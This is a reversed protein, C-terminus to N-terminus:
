SGYALFLTVWNGVTPSDTGRPEGRPARYNEPNTPSVRLTIISALGGPLTMTDSVSGRPVWLFPSCLLAHSKGHGM